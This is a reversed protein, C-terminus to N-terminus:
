LKNCTVLGAWKLGGYFNIKQDKDNNKGFIPVISDIVYNEYFGEKTPPQVKEWFKKRAEEKNKAEIQCYGEFDIYYKM